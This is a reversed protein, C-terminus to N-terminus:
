YNNTVEKMNILTNQTTLVSLLSGGAPYTSPPPPPPPVPKSFLPPPLLLSGTSNGCTCVLRYRQDLIPGKTGELPPRQCLLPGKEVNKHVKEYM